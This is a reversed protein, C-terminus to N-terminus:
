GRRSFPIRRLAMIRFHDYVTNAADRRLYKGACVNDPNVGRRAQAARFLM